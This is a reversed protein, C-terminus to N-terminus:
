RNNQSPCHGMTHSCGNVSIDPLTFSVGGTMQHQAMCPRTLESRIENFLLLSSALYLGSTLVVWSVNGEEAPTADDKDLFKHYAMLVSSPIM